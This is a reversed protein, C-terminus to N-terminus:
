WRAELRPRNSQCEAWHHHCHMWWWCALGQWSPWIQCSLLDTPLTLLKSMTSSFCTSFIINLLHGSWMFKINYLKIILVNDRDNNHLTYATSYYAYYINAGFKVLCIKYKTRDSLGCNWKCVICLRTLSGASMYYKSTVCVTHSYGAPQVNTHQM